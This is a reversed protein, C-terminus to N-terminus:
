GTGKTLFSGTVVTMAVVADMITPERKAKTRRALGFGLAVVSTRMLMVFDKIANDM